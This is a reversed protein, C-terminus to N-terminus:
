IANLSCYCIATISRRNGNKCRDIGIFNQILELVLFIVVVEDKCGWFDYRGYAAIVEYTLRSLYTHFDGLQFIIVFWGASM